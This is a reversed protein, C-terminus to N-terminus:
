ATAEPTKTTRAKRTSPTLTALSSAGEGQAAFGGTALPDHQGPIHSQLPNPANQLRMLTQQLQNLLESQQTVQLRLAGLEQDREALAATTKEVMAIAKADDFFAAAKDRLIRGGMGMRQIALDDAGAVEEVTRFNLYKLELVQSRNLVPWEELPTGNLTAGQGAKFAEYERPWRTRHEDTVRHVPINLNNGPMYIEVREEEKFCRRGERVSAIEDPVSDTFFRPWVNNTSAKPDAGNTRTYFPATSAM